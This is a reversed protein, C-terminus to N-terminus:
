LCSRRGTNVCREVSSHLCSFKSKKLTTFLLLPEYFDGIVTGTSEPQLWPCFSGGWFPISSSNYVCITGTERVCVCAASFAVNNCTMPPFFLTSTQVHSPMNPMCKDYYGMYHLKKHTHAEAYLVSPHKCQAAYTRDCPMLWPQRNCLPSYKACFRESKPITLM